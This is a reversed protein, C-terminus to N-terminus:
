EHDLGFGASQGRPGIQKAWGERASDRETGWVRTVHELQAMRGAREGGMAQPAQSGCASGIAGPGVPTGGLALTPPCGLGVLPQPAILVAVARVDLAQQWGLAGALLLALHAAWRQGGTPAAWLSGGDDEEEGAAEAGVGSHGLEREEASM